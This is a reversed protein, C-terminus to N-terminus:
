PQSAKYPPNTPALQSQPRQGRLLSSSLLLPRSKLPLHCSALYTNRGWIWFILQGHANPFGRTKLYNLRLWDWLELSFTSPMSGFETTPKLTETSYPPCVYSLLDSSIYTRMQGLRGKSIMQKWQLPLKLMTYNIIWRVM